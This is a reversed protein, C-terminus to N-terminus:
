RDIGMRLGEEDPGRFGIDKGVMQTPSLGAAEAMEYALDIQHQAAQEKKTPRKAGIELFGIKQQNYTHIKDLTSYGFAKDPSASNKLLYDVETAVELLAKKNTKSIGYTLGLMEISAAKLKEKERKGEQEPSTNTIFQAVRVPWPSRKEKRNGVGPNGDDQYGRTIHADSLEYTKDKFVKIATELRSHGVKKGTLKANYEKEANILKLIDDKEHELAYKPGKQAAVTILNSVIVNSGLKYFKDMEVGEVFKGKKAKEVKETINKQESFAEKTLLSSLPTNGQKLTEYEGKIRKELDTTRPGDALGIKYQDLLLKTLLKDRDFEVHKQFNKIEFPLLSGNNVAELRATKVKKGELLDRNTKNISKMCELSINEQSAVWRAAEATGKIHTIKIYEQIIERDSNWQYLAGIEEPKSTTLQDM